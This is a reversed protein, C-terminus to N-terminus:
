ERNKEMWEDVRRRLEGAAADSAIPRWERGDLVALAECASLGGREALRELTQDHNDQAQPAQPEIMRWPISRLQPVTCHRDALIPFFERAM